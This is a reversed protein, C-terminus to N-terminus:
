PGLTSALRCQLTWVDKLECQWVTIVKWGASQLLDAKLADRAKNQAIKHAWYEVRSKPLRGINCGHGHWFCGHVFVVAKRGALVIDPSGPLDKRHLRFRYGMRHLLSRVEIEPKTNRSLVRQM